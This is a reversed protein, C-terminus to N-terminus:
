KPSRAANGFWTTGTQHQDRHKGTGGSSFALRHHRPGNICTAVHICTTEADAPGEDVYAMRLGEYGTLDEVYHPDHPFAPLLAFREEPTRLAPITM